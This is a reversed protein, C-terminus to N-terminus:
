AEVIREVRIPYSVDDDHAIVILEGKAVKMLHNYSGVGMNTMNQIALLRHPGSYAALADRVIQPTTDTSADDCVVIQLPSYTQALVSMVAERVYRERNHTLLGMTVLPRGRRSGGDSSM